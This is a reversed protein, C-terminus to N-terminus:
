AKARSGLPREVDRGDIVLIAARQQGLVLLGADVHPYPVDRCIDANGGKKAVDAVRGGALRAPEPMEM